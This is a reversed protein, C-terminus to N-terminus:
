DIAAEKKCYKAASAALYEFFIHNKGALAKVRTAYQYRDQELASEHKEMRYTLVRKVTRARGSACAHSGNFPNSPDPPLPGRVFNM